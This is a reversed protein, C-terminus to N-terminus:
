VCRSTYLLCLVNRGLQFASGVFPAFLQNFGGGFRRFLQHVLVQFRTRQVLGLDVQGDTLAGDSAFDLRHQTAGSELVLAHLAHQVRDDVVQRRGHVNGRDVTLVVVAIGHLASGVVALLERGQRELQHAIRRDRICM